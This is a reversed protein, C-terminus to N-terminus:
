RQSELPQTRSNPICNRQVTDGASTFTLHIGENLRRIMDQAAKNTELEEITITNDM